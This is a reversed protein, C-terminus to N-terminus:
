PLAVCRAIDKTRLSVFISESAAPRSSDLILAHGTEAAVELPIESILGKTQVLTAERIPLIEDGALVTARVEGIDGALLWQPQRDLRVTAKTGQIQAPAELSVTARNSEFEFRVIAQKAPTTLWFTAEDVLMSDVKPNLLFTTPGLGAMRSYIVDSSLEDYSRQRRVIRDALQADVVARQGDFWFALVTTGTPVRQYQLERVWEEFVCMGVNNKGYEGPLSGIMYPTRSGREDLSPKKGPVILILTNDAMEPQASIVAKPLRAVRDSHATFVALANSFGAVYWGLITLALGASLFRLPTQSLRPLLSKSVACRLIVAIAAMQAAYFRLHHTLGSGGFMEGWGIRCLEFVWYVISVVIVWDLGSILLSRPGSQRKTDLAGGLCFVLLYGLVGAAGFSALFVRHFGGCGVQEPYSLAPTIVIWLLIFLTFRWNARFGFYLLFLAALCLVPSLQLPCVTAYVISALRGTVMAATLNQINQLYMGEAPSRLGLVILVYFRIVIYTGSLVWLPLHLRILRRKVAGAGLRTGWLLEYVLLLFPVFLVYEYTLLGALYALCAVLVNLWSRKRHYGPGLLWFTLLSFFAANVAMNPSIEYISEVHSPMVSFLLSGIAGILFSKSLAELIWFALLCTVCYIAINNARPILPDTGFLKYEVAPIIRTLPRYFEPRRGEYQATIYGSIKQWTQPRFDSWAAGVYYARLGSISLALPLLVLVVVFWQRVRPNQCLVHDPWLQVQNV